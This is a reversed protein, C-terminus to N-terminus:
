HFGSSEDEAEFCADPDSESAAETSSHTVNVSSNRRANTVTTHM